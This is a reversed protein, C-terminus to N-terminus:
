EKGQKQGSLNGKCKDLTNFLRNVFLKQKNKVWVFKIKIKLLSNTNHFFCKM